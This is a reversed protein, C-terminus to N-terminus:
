AKKKDSESLKFKSVLGGLEIAMRALEQANATLEQMSTTVEEISGSAAATSSASELAITTVEEIAKTVEQTNSLQNESAAAIQEVQAATTAAAKLIKDLSQRVKDMAIKGEEVEKSAIQVSGVAKSTEQQITRILNAIQRAAQASDEALKRVEEAVVAFGKGAEGARAAEIAANLALLNTQDAINTIVEVVRGIEQSRDGLKGVVQAIDNAAETIRGTRTVALQSAEIGQRALEATETSAIAGENAGTTILTASKGMKAIIGTTQEIRHSQITLGQTIQLITSSVKETSTNMEESSSSLQQASSSVKDATDKIQLVMTRMSELIKNFAEALRGIEDKSAVHVKQTLDGARSALAEALTTLTKLPTTITRSFFFLIIFTSIAVVLFLLVINNKMIKNSEIIVSHTSIGLRVLGIKRFGAADDKRTAKTEELGLAELEGRATKQQQETNIPVAFEYFGGTGKVMFSGVQPRTSEIHKMVLEEPANIEGGAKVLANSRNDYIFVYSIDAEKAVSDVLSQLNKNDQLLIGLTSSSALSKSVSFGRKQLEKNLIDKQQTISTWTLISGLLVLSLIIFITSKEKLGFFVTM